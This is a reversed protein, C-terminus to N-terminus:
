VGAVRDIWGGVSGALAPLPLSGSDLVTAHFDALSFLDGMRKQAEDRLKLIELKGTLYALAQGPMVIYRDAEAAMFEAPLPVHTVLYDVARARTWGFAHLGTDVVLRAARMLSEGVAGLRARTDTYLGMEEALQEAYLGWGESFATLSRQRQIAPLDDLLQVRSLQLHHGPVAEHFAVVELDWGTGATPRETNFWFTGPRGGDLRPPTYHPAAGSTAVVQPMATVACPPPLPRPFFQPARAEARRIATVAADIADEASLGGASARIAGRVEQLSSLGLEKGLECAREELTEVADLGVQHLQEPTRSLTTHIRVARAYDAEGGPLHGVGADDGSRSQPLLERLTDVWRGIAPRVVDAALQRRQEAWAAAGSWGPPPEPTMVPRPERADIVSEGWSIAQEVLPAVPLRGKDAGERLRDTVQDMWRGCGSLREVYCHAAQPDVLVTRAAVALFLGPQGYPMPTVTHEVAASDIVALEQAVAERVCALTVRDDPELGAPDVADAQEVFRGVESRWAQTGNESDDPMLHDFGPIGYSTAALPHIELWRAHFRDALERTTSM